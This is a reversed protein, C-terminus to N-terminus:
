LTLISFNLLRKGVDRSGVKKESDLGCRSSSDVVINWSCKQDLVVLVCQCTCEGPREEGDRSVMQCRQPSTTNWVCVCVGGGCGRELFFFFSQFTTARGQIFGTKIHFASKEIMNMCLFSSGEKLFFIFLADTFLFPIRIEKQGHPQQGKSRQSTRHSQFWCTQLYRKREHKKTCTARFLLQLCAHGLCGLM